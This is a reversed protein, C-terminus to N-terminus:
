SLSDATTDTQTRSRKKVRAVSRLAVARHRWALIRVARAAIVAALLALYLRDGRIDMPNRTGAMVDRAFVGHAGHPSVAARLTGCVLRNFETGYLTHM